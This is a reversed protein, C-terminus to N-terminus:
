MVAGRHRYYSSFIFHLMLDTAKQPRLTLLVATIPNTRTQDLWSSRWLLHAPHSATVTEVLRVHQIYKRLSDVYVQYWAAKHAARIYYVRKAAWDALWPESQKQTGGVLQQDHWLFSSDARDMSARLSCGPASFSHWAGVHLINVGDHSVVSGLSPCIQGGM